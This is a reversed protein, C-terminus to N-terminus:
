RKRPREGKEGGEQRFREANKEMLFMECSIKCDLKTIMTLLIVICVLQM